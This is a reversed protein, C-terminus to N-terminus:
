RGRGGTVTVSRPAASSGLVDGTGRYVARVTHRGVSLRPLVILARGRVDVRAAYSRGGVQVVVTGSERPAPSAVTVTVRARQRAGIRRSLRMSTTSTAKVTRTASGASASRSADGRVTATVVVGLARGLQNAPVRYTHGTAGHIAVGNSLWQYTFTLAGGGVNWTGPEASVRTGVHATGNIRPPTRNVVAASGDPARVTVLPSTAAGTAQGGTVRATVIVGLADGLLKAGIVLSSSTAGAIPRGDAVWQYTFGLDADPVTWSGTSATVTHGVVAEGSVAPAATAGVSTSGATTVVSAASVADAPASAGPASATVRVTVERGLATVPVTFTPDTAGDVPTGGVLWQYALGLRTAPVNWTGPGATLTSGVAYSGSVAPAATDALQFGLTRDGAAGVAVGQAEVVGQADAVPSGLGVGDPQLMLPVAAGPTFGSAQIDVAGQVLGLHPNDSTAIPQPASTNGAVDVARVETPAAGSAVAASLSDFWSGTGTSFQLAGIGSDADQGAAVVAGDTGAAAAVTPATPDVLVTESVPDSMNGAGDTARYEVNTRGAPLDFPATYTQWDGGDLRYEVSTVAGSDSATLTGQAGALHWGDDGPDSVDLRVTPATTDAPAPLTWADSISPDYGAQGNYRMTISVTGSSTLSPDSVLQQFRVLGGKTESHLRSAVLTGNVLIDYSKTQPGDYTEVARLVFPQNPTVKMDFTFAAGVVTSGSYRRTRGAEVSTGGNGTSTVNHASESANDGLDIYDEYSAPPDALSISASTTASGLTADGAVFRVTLQQAGATVSTPITVAADLTASAGPELTVQHSPAAAPWGDPTDVVLRGTEAASADNTVTAQVTASQAPDGSGVQVSVPDITVGATVTAFVAPDLAFTQSVGGIRATITASATLDGAATAAPVAVSFPLDVTDGPAVSDAALAAPTAVLGGDVDLVASVGRVASTGPNELRLVGTARGGPAVAGGAVISARLGSTVSLEHTGAGVGHVTVYGGTLTAGSDGVATGAWVTSGDLTVTATSNDVPVAIDGTTGAPATVELAFAGTTPQNSWKVSLDGHPTPLAGQAWAVSGPHPQVSWTDFGIGTPQAGLLENSLEPVVGTSWGHADSTYSGEYQSGGTGIGEWDTTGSGHTEMWGYLRKIEDIASGAQGAMFRAVIDEYSTFAYVRSSGDGVLTNNDMFANGYPLQTTASLYNLASTARQQDAVGTLVAFGNGDQGHRVAGTADDLYAGANPDWLHANIADAVSSARATWTAADDGHGLATAMKAADQLALVYLANYYTVEGNRGLFAYDGYSSPRSLLGNADTMSPYFDNLTKTLAAYYQTAYGEDGTYRVYDWSATVWYLPYDFLPLTYNSISAPPIWGDARQHDALDALVDRAAVATDHTLYTTQGSVYIDGVYPDRDRKAGDHLVLKGELTPSDANRPDVDDSRFTDTILENTYAADYWATNLDDDSSDFWGTYTDPTGVFGTFDLSVDDIKVQGVATTDPADSALADLTITVYRFGHLGDACVKGDAQCGHTDTWESPGQPVAVQDTGPTIADGNDSRTFDSTAGLYQTTESFALRLGPDGASADAFSLKPYGVVVKGFDLTISAKAPSQVIGPYLEAIRTYEGKGTSQDKTITIRVSTTTVTSGFRVVHEVDTNGTVTAETVWSGGVMADVTYDQPVGDSNSLLTVGPLDVPTPSTITLTDPYAGITADNWFTSSDGDIANSAYYTRPVGNDTNPGVTSSGSATTGSPWAPPAPNALTAVGDGLIGNPNTVDGTTSLVSVPHVDSSSPGQVYKHWDPAPVDPGSSTAAAAPTAATLASAAGMGPGAITVGVAILAATALALVRRRQPVNRRM